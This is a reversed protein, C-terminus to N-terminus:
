WKAMREVRRNFLKCIDYLVCQVYYYVPLTVSSINITVPRKMATVENRELEDHTVEDRAVYISCSLM